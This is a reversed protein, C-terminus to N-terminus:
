DCSCIEKSVAVVGFKCKNLQAFTIDERVTTTVGLDVKLTSTVTDVGDNSTGKTTNIEQM